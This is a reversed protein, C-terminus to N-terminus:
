GAQRENCVVGQREPLIDAVTVGLAAALRECVAASPRYGWREIAGITTPSCRARVALGYIALGREVRLAKMRVNGAETEVTLM